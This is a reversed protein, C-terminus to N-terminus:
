HTRSASFSDTLMADSLISHFSASTTSLAALSGLGLFSASADSSLTSGHELDAAASLSAEGEVPEGPVNEDMGFRVSPDISDPLGRQSGLLLVVMLALKAPM